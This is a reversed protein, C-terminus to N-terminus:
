SLFFLLQGVLSFFLAVFVFPKGLFSKNNPEMEWGTIEVRQLKYKRIEFFQSTKNKKEFKERKASTEASKARNM